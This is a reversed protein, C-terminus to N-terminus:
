WSSSAGGGGSSGGDSSSSSSSSSDSSSSSSSRQSAYYLATMELTGDARRTAHGLAILKEERQREKELYAKYSAVSKFKSAQFFFSVLYLGFLGVFGAYFWFLGMDNYQVVAIGTAILGILPIKYVLGRLLGLKIYQLNLTQPPKISSLEPSLELEKIKRNVFLAGLTGGVIILVAYSGLLFFPELHAQYLSLMKEQTLFRSLFKEIPNINTLLVAGGIYIFAGPNVILFLILFWRGMFPARGNRIQKILGILLLLLAWAGWIYLANEFDMEESFKPSDEPKVKVPAVVQGTKYASLFRIAENIGEATKTERLKPRLYDNLASLAIVDPIDGEIGYGTEIKMKRDKMALVLLLGNNKERAGLQWKEFARMALEEISEKQLQAVIYVAAMVDGQERLERISQNVELTEQSTLYNYPDIVNSQYPPIETQAWASNSLILNLTLTLLLCIYKKM